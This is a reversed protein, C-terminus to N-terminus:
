SEEKMNQFIYIERLTTRAHTHTNKSLPTFLGVGGSCQVPERKGPTNTNYAHLYISERNGGGGGKKCGKSREKGRNGKREYQQTIIKAQYKNSCVFLVNVTDLM